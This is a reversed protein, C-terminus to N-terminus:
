TRNARRLAELAPAMQHDNALEALPMWRIDRLLPHDLGDEEPDHGLTPQQSADVEVLYISESGLSYRGAHLLRVVRGNLRTEEQVERVIADEPSEGAEIAGGPLTWYTRGDAHGHQVMLVSDDRLIVACVRPRSVSTSDGRATVRRMLAVDFGRRRYNDLRDRLFIPALAPDIEVFGTEGYFHVLATNPLCFCEREALVNVFEHLLRRGIGRGRYPEDVQMGRLVLVGNEEALRVLGVWQDDHEAVLVCEGDPPPRDYGWQSYTARLRVFEDPRVERVAVHM